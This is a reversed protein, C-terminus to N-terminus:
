LFYHLTILKDLAISNKNFFFFVKELRHMACSKILFVHAIIKDKKKKFQIFGRRRLGNMRSDIKAGAIFLGGFRRSKEVSKSPANIGCM